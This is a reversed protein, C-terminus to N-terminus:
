MPKMKQDNFITYVPGDISIGDYRNKHRLFWISDLDIYDFGGTGVALSIGASLGVITETMCGIMLKLGHKRAMNYIRLSESIGSKAIKINVGHCLDESIARELDEATFITEDLIIPLPSHKKIQKLGKYDAKPLPQEFCDVHCDAKVVFNVIERFAKVTYGQNGDLRLTFDDGRKEKLSRCVILLVKKDEEPNGSVKLKFCSFGKGAGYAIWRELLVNEALFPITIDTETQRSKGGWYERESLGKTKLHGRFLAVELGSLAMPNAPYKKRLTRIKDECEEIPTDLLLSSVERLVGKIAPITEAKLAFSTPCEGIGYSGDKLTVKVIVSKIVDKKGLSTSFTTKLPRVIEHFRITKINNM